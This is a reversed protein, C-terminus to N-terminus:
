GRRVACVARASVAGVTVAANESLDLAEETLADTFTYKAINGGFVGGFDFVFDDESANAIVYLEEGSKEDTRRFVYTGHGHYVTEFDGGQLCAREKRMKGLAKYHDLLESDELGWPYPTRCFPDHGGEVGVEDGYYVSPFGYVTYQLTSALKLRKVALRKAGDSM